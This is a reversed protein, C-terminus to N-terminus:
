KTASDPYFFYTRTKSPQNNGYKLLLTGVRHSSNTIVLRKPPQSETRGSILLSMKGVTHLVGYFQSEM